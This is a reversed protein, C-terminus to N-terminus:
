RRTWRWPHNRGMRLYWTVSTTWSWTCPSAWRPHLVPSSIAFQACLVTMYVWVLCPSCMGVCVCVCARACVSLCVGSSLPYHHPQQWDRDCDHSGLKPYSGTLQQWPLAWWSNGQGGTCHGSLWVATFAQCMWHRCSGCWNCTCPVLCLLRCPLCCQAVYTRVYTCQWSYIYCSPCQFLMRLKVYSWGVSYM